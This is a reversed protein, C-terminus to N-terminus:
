RFLLRNQGVHLCDKREIRCPMGSVIKYLKGDSKKISIGNASGLDEVFWQGASFNLVAHEVDVMSAYPSTRLDIDVQNEKEDRGIVMATRGYMDWVMLEKNEESLLVVEKLIGSETQEMKEPQMSIKRDKFTLLFFIFAGAGSIYMLRFSDKIQEKYIGAIFMIAVFILMIVMDAARKKNM